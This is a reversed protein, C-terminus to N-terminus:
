WTHPRFSEWCTGPFPQQRTVPHVPHVGTHVPIVRSWPQTLRFRLRLAVTPEVALISTRLCPKLPMPPHTDWWTGPHASRTGQWPQFWTGPEKLVEQTASM